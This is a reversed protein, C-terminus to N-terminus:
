KIDITRPKAEEAKPLVVRLVGNNLEAGIKSADVAHEFEISRSFNQVRMENLLVRAKEPIEYPKREGSITLVNNEFTIKVDEKKVGPLEALVVTENEQEAIDVAPYLVRGPFYDTACADDLLNDFTRPIDFRVLM